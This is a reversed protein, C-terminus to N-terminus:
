RRSADPPSPLEMWHSVLPLHHGSFSEQFQKRKVGHGYVDNDFDCIFIGEHETDWVLVVADKRPLREKVSIWGM